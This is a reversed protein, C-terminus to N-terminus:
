TDTTKISPMRVVKLLLISVLIKGAKDSTWDLLYKQLTNSYWINFHKLGQGSETAAIPFLFKAWHGTLSAGLLLPFHNSQAIYLKPTVPM